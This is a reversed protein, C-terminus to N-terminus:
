TAPMFAAQSGPTISSTMLTLLPRLGAEISLKAGRAERAAEVEAERDRAGALRCRSM